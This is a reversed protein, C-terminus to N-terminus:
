QGTIKFIEGTVSVADTYSVVFINGSKDVVLGNPSHFGGTISDIENENTINYVSNNTYNSTVFGSAGNLAVDFPEFGSPTGTLTLQSVAGASTIKYIPISSASGVYLTSNADICMGLGLGNGINSVLSSINGSSSIKTITMDISAGQNLAYLNGARDLTLAFAFSLNPVSDLINGLSSLKYITCSSGTNNGVFINGNNDAAIGFPQTFGSAFTTTTGDPTIKSITGDGRNTVYFNGSSDMAIKQPNNFGTAFISTSYLLKYTFIPGNVTMGNAVLTVKGTGAQAPVAVIMQTSNVSYVTAKKGNFYVSDMSVITNFGTGAITDMSGTVGSTPNISTIAPQQPPMPNTPTSSSNKSCSQSIIILVFGIIIEFLYFKKM